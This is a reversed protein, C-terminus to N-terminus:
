NLSKAITEVVGQETYIKAQRIANKIAKANSSGHAKIVTGNIGMLPAGGFESYDMNNKFETLGKKVLLASMKTFLNKKYIAKLNVMIAGAVGEYMKLIINGTFGDAVVVECCGFPIDRAEINGIFNYPASKMREYAELQLKGGKTEETGINALGVRPSEYGMVKKMYIDGMVAFQHLYEPTCDVNAGMDILMVPGANTPMVAAIAARKIGRIRKVIFTAGMVLAGTPGASVFASGEGAALAKLGVALSTESKSKLIEAAHDTMLMVDPADLIDMAALSIGNEAACKKIEAESGTLRIRVGLEKVALECGRLVELPANDGGFADVIIRMYIM